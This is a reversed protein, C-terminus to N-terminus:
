QFSVLRYFVFGEIFVLIYIYMVLVDSRVTEWKEQNWKFVWVTSRHTHRIFSINSFINPLSIPMPRNLRNYYWIVLTNRQSFFCWYKDKSLTKINILYIRWSSTAEKRIGTFAEPLYFSPYKESNDMRHQGLKTMHKSIRCFRCWSSWLIKHSSFKTKSKPSRLLDLCYIKTENWM